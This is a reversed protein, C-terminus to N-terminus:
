RIAGVDAEPVWGGRGGPLEVRVFGQTEDVLRAREGEHAWGREEARPDPGERLAVRDRGTVIGPAGDSLAGTKVLLGGLSLLTLVAAFPLAIGLALRGAEARIVRRGIWAGLLLAEFLLLLWALTAESLGSVIAEVLPPRTEVTAEGERDARERGLASRAAAISREAGEDGPRLWLVREMELIAAGFRGKRAYSTGLNFRVDPDDVGAAVLAEYREIAADLDGAFYAENGERFLDEARQASAEQAFGFVLGLLCPLALAAVTLARRM